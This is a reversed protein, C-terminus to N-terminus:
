VAHTHEYLYINIFDTLIIASALPLLTARPFYKSSLVRRGKTSPFVQSQLDLVQKVNGEVGFVNTTELCRALWGLLSVVELLVVLALGSTQWELTWGCTDAERELGM